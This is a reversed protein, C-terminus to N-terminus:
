LTETNEKVTHVRGGLINVDDVYVLLQHTGNLHLFFASVFIWQTIYPKYSGINVCPDTFYNFLDGSTEDHLVLSLFISSVCLSLFLYKCINVCFNHQDDCHSVHLMCMCVCACVCMYEISTFTLIDVAYLIFWLTHSMLSTFCM